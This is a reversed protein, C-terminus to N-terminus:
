QLGLRVILIKRTVTMMIMMLEDTTMPLLQFKYNKDCAHKFCDCSKTIEETRLLLYISM